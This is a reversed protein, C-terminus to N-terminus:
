TFLPLKTLSFLGRYISPLAPQNLMEQSGNTKLV